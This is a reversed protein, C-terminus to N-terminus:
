EEISNDDVQGKHSDETISAVEPVLMVDESGLGEEERMIQYELEVQQM